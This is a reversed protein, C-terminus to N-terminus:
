PLPINNLEFEFSVSVIAAPTQYVLDFTTPDIEFYYEVAVAQGNQAVTEYAVAEHRVQPNNPDVLYAENDFAWGQHSDLENSENDFSLAVTVGFLEENIQTGQYTVTAGSKTHATGNEIDALNRFRFTEMRGPLVADLTGVVSKIQSIKRDVLPLNVPFNLEPIETQVTAAISTQRLPAIVHDQDDIIKLTAQNLQISIPQVRPEWRILMNLTTYDLNPATLIRSADVRNVEVSLVGTTTRPPAKMTANVADAGGDVPLADSSSPVLVVEGVAGGYVDVELNSQQMVEYIAEWFPASKLELSLQRQAIDPQVSDRLAINNKTQRRIATLAQQVSFGGELTVTTPLTAQNVAKAELAKRVSLLRQIFDTTADDGPVDIYDLADPHLAALEEEAADRDEIIASNMQDILGHVREMLAVEESQGLVLSAFVMSAFVFVIMGRAVCAARTVPWCLIQSPRPSTKM